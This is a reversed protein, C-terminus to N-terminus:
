KIEETKGAAFRKWIKWENNKKVYVAIFHGKSVFRKQGTKDKKETTWFIEDSATVTAYNKEGGVDEINIEFGTITTITDSPAFWYKYLGDKNRVPTGGGPYLTADDTFLSLITREDNKLWATRFIEEINKITEIDKAPLREQGNAFCCFAATMLASFLLLKINLKM